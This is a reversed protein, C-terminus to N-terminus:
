NPNNMYQRLNNAVEDVDLYLYKTTVSIDSHGLAKSILAVSAGNNLLNKAYARRISHANINKFGYKKSYRNLQKSIACNSSKTKCVPLGNQTIFIFSHETGYYKKIRSNLDILKLFMKLLEDDLPLKLSNHNKLVSGDLVLQKGVFDIHKIELCGLTKIRIGTKYLTIIAVSDRFGIFNSKDIVSLLQHLDDANSGKKVENDVKIKIGSWFRDQIWGNNYFRGLIAKISKLRILKTQQSVNLSGLYDYIVQQNLDEVFNINTNQILQNFAYQYTQITRIRNGELHMQETVAKLVVSLKQKNSKNENLVSFGLDEQLNEVSFVGHKRNRKM